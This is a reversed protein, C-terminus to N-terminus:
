RKEKELGILQSVKTFFYKTKVAKMYKIKHIIQYELESFWGSKGVKEDGARGISEGVLLVAWETYRIQDLM